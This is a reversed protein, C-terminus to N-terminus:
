LQMNNRYILPSMGVYKKFLRSFYFVDKFGLSDAVEKVTDDTNLLINKAEAIKLRNIYANLPYGTYESVVRRLTSISIHHRKAISKADFPKFLSDGLDDMIDIVQQTKTTEATAQAKLMFEFLLTEMLLAARDINDPLGSEMLMFIREIRNLQTADEDGVQKAEDVNTLWSGLWEEIRTGEFTFYYEDWYGDQDPGYNYVVGPRLFLLSGSEVLQVPGDNAQYSGKGGSLYIFAWKSFTSQHRFSIRGPLHGVNLINLSQLKLKSSEIPLTIIRLPYPSIMYDMFKPM